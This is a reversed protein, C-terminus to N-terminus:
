DHRRLDLFRRVLDAELKASATRAEREHERIAGFREEVTRRLEALGPGVVANRASVRVESGCKVLTADDVAVAIEEGSRREYLLIGPVLATVFDIHRPLLTFAGNPADATVKRADEDVLVSTPLLLRLRM